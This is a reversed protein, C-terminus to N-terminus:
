IPQQNLNTWIWLVHLCTYVYYMCIYRRWWIDVLCWHHREAPSGRLPFAYHSTRSSRTILHCFISAAGWWWWWGIQLICQETKCAHVRVYTHVSWVHSRLWICCTYMCVCVYQVCKKTLMHIPRGARLWLWITVTPPDVILTMKRWQSTPGRPAHLNAWLWWHSRQSHFIYLIYMSSNLRCFTHVKKM